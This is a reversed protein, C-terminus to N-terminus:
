ECGIGDKDGDFRHPDPQYVTFKKHPLVDKCDLDPPSPPICFDPYSTDCNDQNPIQLTTEKTIQPKSEINKSSCGFQQAWSEFEFESTSCYQTSIKALNNYLLESNLVKESCIVKGLMRHHDDYLQLDDQDVHAMSGLPCTSKTFETAEAYREDGIEPTDTLSIRIKIGDIVLTDGDIIRDVTGTICKAKGFCSFKSETKVPEVKVTEPEVKVTEPEIVPEVKVPKPEISKTPKTNKSSEFNPLETPEPKVQNVIAIVGVSLVLAVIFIVSFKIIKITNAM